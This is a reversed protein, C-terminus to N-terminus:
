DPHKEVEVRELAPWGMVVPSHAGARPSSKQGAVLAIDGSPLFTYKPILLTFVPIAWNRMTSSLSGGGPGPRETSLLPAETSSPLLPDVLAVKLILSAAGATRRAVM